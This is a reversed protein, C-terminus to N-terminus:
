VNRYLLFIVKILDVFAEEAGELFDEFRKTNPLRVKGKSNPKKIVNLGEDFFMEKKKSSLIINKPPVGIYEM